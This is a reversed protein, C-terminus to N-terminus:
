FTYKMNYSVNYQLYKAFLKIRLKGDPEVSLYQNSIFHFSNAGYKFPILRTILYVTMFVNIIETSM